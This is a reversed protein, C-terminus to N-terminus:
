IEICIRNTGIAITTLRASLMSLIKDFL